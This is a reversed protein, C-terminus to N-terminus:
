RRDRPFESVHRQFRCLLLPGQPMRSSTLVACRTACRLASTVIGQLWDEQVGAVGRPNERRSSACATALRRLLLDPGLHRGRNRPGALPYRMSQTLVLFACVQYATSACDRYTYAHLLSVLFAYRSRESCKECRTAASGVDIGSIACHTCLITAYRQTPRNCLMHTPRYPTHYRFSTM